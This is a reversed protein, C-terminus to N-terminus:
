KSEKKDATKSDNSSVSPDSNADKAQDAAADAAAEAVQEAIQHALLDGGEIPDMGHMYRLENITAVGQQELKMTYDALSNPDGQMLTTTDFQAELNGYPILKAEIEQTWKAFWRGLCNNIYATNRESISKYTQGSNDGMISELGFLLAIEERQFNRQQLFQSDIASVPLTTATMGDRLLGAKGTNDLGEHRENFGDLFQKADKANRFMGQPAELLMGPRGSNAITVAAGEQGAQTLGFVDRAQDIVHMGWVGNFSTNMVHIVDRDPIKYYGGSILSNSIADQTTGMEPTVLHWKQGEVLMTQCNYPLIPILGVPTGVANREIYARGNGSILAHIMMAEKLQFPTMIDNCKKNLLRWTNNFKRPRTGDENREFIDIEMQGIHGSIRNVAYTVPALGLASQTTVNIGTKSKKGGFAEVLWNTPNKIGSLAKFSKGLKM